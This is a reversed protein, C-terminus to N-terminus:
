IVHLMSFLVFKRRILTSSWIANNLNRHFLIIMNLLIIYWYKRFVIRQPIHFASLSFILLVYQFSKSLPLRFVWRGFNIVLFMSVCKCHLQMKSVKMIYCHVIKRLSWVYKWVNYGYVESSKKRLVAVKWFMPPKLTPSEGELFIKKM